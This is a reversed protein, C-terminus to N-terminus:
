RCQELQPDAPDHCVLCPRANRQLALRCRGLFGPPHPDVGQGLGGGPGAGRGGMAATAHCTACDRETHCSVCANLNREAAWSHHGPGRPPDTWIAKPPHFRGRGAFNAYPGSMTVGARQHCGLCFSQERHCSTCRPNNQRAAVAHLDLWDNPHVQRPRVRGDHCDTCYRESHCTACLQSDNAAVSRHRQLWGPGHGANHLWSPPSLVGTPFHTKLLGGSGRLHCTTCSGRAKGQAPPPMQHCHFCGRMRPMQDRTALELNQVAGHCQQCGINRAAHVAHDFRLHPRPILQREVRNGDGKRYGVHCYGCQGILAAGKTQVADLNSHDTHHCGDCLTPSPLLSDRSSHSTKARAHCSTCALHLKKVHKKHNFRITLKQPPFIAPSPGGDGPVAGPPRDYLPVAKGGPLPALGHVPPPAVSASSAGAVASAPPAADARAPRPDGLLLAVAVALACSLALWCTTAKM